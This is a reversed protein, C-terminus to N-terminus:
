VVRKSGRQGYDAYYEEVYPESMDKLNLVNLFKQYGANKVEFDLVPNNVELEQARQGKTGWLLDLYRDHTAKIQEKNLFRKMLELVGVFTGFLKVDQENGKLQRFALKYINAIVTEYTSNKSPIEKYVQKGDVYIVEGREDLMPEYAVRIGRGVSFKLMRPISHVKSKTLTIKDPTSKGTAIVIDKRISAGGILARLIYKHSFAKITTIKENKRKVLLTVEKM